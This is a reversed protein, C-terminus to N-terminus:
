KIIDSFRKAPVTIAGELIVEVPIECSIGIDLDTATLYLTNKKTELLINSLIPLTIKPSVVNQVAQVGQMLVDKSCKIKM